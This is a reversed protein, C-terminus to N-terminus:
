RPRGLREILEGEPNIHRSEWKLFKVVVLDGPQYPAQPTPVYINQIYRPDDPVVYYFRGTHQLTGVMTTRRRKLIRIVRGRKSAEEKRRGRPPRDKKYRVVVLDQHMATATDEAAVFIDEESHESVLFAFGKEHVHLVGTVLEADEPRMWRDHRIRTVLGELEMKELEPEVMKALSPPVKLKSSIQNANLPQYDSKGTLQLIKGRLDSSTLKQPV